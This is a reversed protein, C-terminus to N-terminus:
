SISALEMHLNALFEKPTTKSSVILRNFRDHTLTYFKSRRSDDLELLSALTSLHEGGGVAMDAKLQAFNTSVYKEIRASGKKSEDRGSTSSTLDGSADTTNEFTESSAEISKETVACAMLLSSLAFPVVIKCVNIKKM